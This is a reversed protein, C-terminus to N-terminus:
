RRTRRKKKLIQHCLTEVLCPFQPSESTTRNVTRLPFIWPGTAWFSDGSMRWFILPGFFWVDATWQKKSRIRTMSLMERNLFSMTKLKGQPSACCICESPSCTRVTLASFVMHKSNASPYQTPFFMQKVFRPNTKIREVRIGCIRTSEIGVLCRGPDSSTLGSPLNLGRQEFLM